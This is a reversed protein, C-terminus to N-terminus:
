QKEFSTMTENNTVDTLENTDSIMTVTARPATFKVEKDFTRKTAKQNLTSKLPKAFGSTFIEKRQKHFESNKLEKFFRKFKKRLNCNSLRNINYWQKM